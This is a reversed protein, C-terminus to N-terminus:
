GVLDALITDRARNVASMREDSGGADPHAIMAADRFVGEVIKRVKREDASLPTSVGAERELISWAAAVKTTVSTTAPIALWGTYQEGKTAAGYRTVARLASLTLGIARINGTGSDYTDCAMRMPGKDTDASVVIRPGEARAGKRLSGDANIWYAGIDIELVFSTAGLQELEYSVGGIATDRDVKFPARRRQNWPTAAKPYDVIPRIWYRM